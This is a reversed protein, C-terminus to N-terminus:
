RHETSLICGCLEPRLSGMASTVDASPRWDVQREDANTQAQWAHLEQNLTDPNDIRRGLCQTTMCSLEIEVFLGQACAGTL